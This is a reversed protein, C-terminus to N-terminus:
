KDMARITCHLSDDRLWEYRTPFKEDVKERMMSLAKWVRQESKLKIFSVCTIGNSEVTSSERYPAGVANINHLYEEEDDWESLVKKTKDLQEPSITVGDGIGGEKPRSQKMQTVKELTRWEYEVLSIGDIPILTEGEEEFIASCDICIQKLVRFEELTLPTNSAHHENVFALTVKAWKSGFNEQKYGHLTCVENLHSKFLELQLPFGHLVLCIVGNWSIFFSKPKLNLTAFHSSISDDIVIETNEQIPTAAIAEEILSAAEDFASSEAHSTNNEISSTSDNEDNIGQGQADSDSDDSDGLDWPEMESMVSSWSRLQAGRLNSM